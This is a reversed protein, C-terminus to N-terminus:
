VAPGDFDSKGGRKRVLRLDEICIAHSMAKCMDYVTLAAVSAGHLAEMEVGTKGETTVTCSIYMSRDDQAEVTVSCGQIPLPHCLPIVAWTQKVAMTAAIIATQTVSGKKTAFDGAVLAQMIETGLVVRAEATATRKTVSKDSVDVMAPRGAEDLHTLPM